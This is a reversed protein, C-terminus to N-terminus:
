APAVADPESSITIATSTTLHRASRTLEDARSTAGPMVHLAGEADPEGHPPRGGGAHDGVDRRDFHNRLGDVPSDDHGHVPAPHQISGNLAYKESHTPKTADAYMSEGLAVRGSSLAPTKM